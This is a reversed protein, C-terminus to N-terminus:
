GSVCAPAPVLHEGVELAGLVVGAAGARVVAGPPGQVDGVDGAVGHALQQDLRRALRQGGWPIVVEVARALLPEPAVLRRDAVAHAAAGREGVQLWRDRS